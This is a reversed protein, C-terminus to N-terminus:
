PKPSVQLTEVSKDQLYEYRLSNVLVAGATTYGSGSGSGAQNQSTSTSWAPGARPGGRQAPAPFAPLRGPSAGSSPTPRPRTPAHSRTGHLNFPNVPEFAREAPSAPTSTSPTSSSGGSRLARITEVASGTGPQTGGVVQSGPAAPHANALGGHSGAQGNLLPRVVTGADWSPEDGGGARGGSVGATNLNTNTFGGGGNPNANRLGAANVNTNMFGSSVGAANVINTNVLGGGGSAAARRAAASLEGYSLRPGAVAAGAGGQEGIGGGQVGPAAAFLPRSGGSLVTADKVSVRLVRGFDNGRPPAPLQSRRGPSGQGGGGGGRGVGVGPAAAKAHKAWKEPFQAAVRAELERYYLESTPEIHMEGVLADHVAYAMETMDREQGFWANREAWTLARVDPAPAGPARPSRSTSSAAVAGPKLHSSATAATASASSAGAAHSYSTSSLITSSTTTGWGQGRGAVLPPQTSLATTSPAASMSLQLFEAEMAALEPFEDIGLGLGSGPATPIGSSGGGKGGGKHPAASRPSPLGHGRNPNSFARRPGGPSASGMGTGVGSVRSGRSSSSSRALQLPRGGAQGGGGARPQPLEGPSRRPGGAKGSRVPSTRHSSPSGLTYVDASLPLPVGSSHAAKWPSGTVSISPSGSAPM